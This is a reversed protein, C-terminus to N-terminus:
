LAYQGWQWWWWINTRTWTLWQACKNRETILQPSQSILQTDMQMPAM